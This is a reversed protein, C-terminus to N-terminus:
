QKNSYNAMYGYFYVVVAACSPTTPIEERYFTARNICYRMLTRQWVKEKM